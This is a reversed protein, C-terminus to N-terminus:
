CLAYIRHFILRTLICDFPLMTRGLLHCFPKLHAFAIGGPLPETGFVSSVGNGHCLYCHWKICVKRSVFVRRHITNKYNKVSPIIQYTSRAHPVRAPHWGPFMCHYVNPLSCWLLIGKDPSILIGSIQLIGQAIKCVM